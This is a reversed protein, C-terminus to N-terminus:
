ELAAIRAQLETVSLASLQGEQKEALIRLLRTREQKNEARKKNLAEEELKVAIVRKVVDLAIELTTKVTSTTTDVFSEESSEKLDHSVDKAIVDLNFTDKSRLPVDWLQEVSLAGRVSQFRIKSRTAAEFINM